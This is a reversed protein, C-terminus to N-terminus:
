GELALLIPEELARVIWDLFRAADAGDILRHDYSLSLPLMLRPEFQDDRYVPEIGARAVGLIAVPEDVVEVPVESVVVEDAPDASRQEDIPGAAIVVDGKRRGAPIRPVRSGESRRVGVRIMGPRVFRSFNGLAWLTKSECFEGDEPDHDVYILGDKYDYPSVALWWQWSSAGAVVLDFHIVRAVALATDMGLDRGRGHPGLPCYESMSYQLGPYRDLAERLAKRREVLGSAPLDTGYSHSTIRRAVTAGVAGARAPEFFAELYNEGSWLDLISGKKIGLINVAIKFICEPLKLGKTDIVEIMIATEKARLPLGKSV